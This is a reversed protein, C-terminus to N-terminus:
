HKMETYFALLHYFYKEALIITIQLRLLCLSAISLGNQKRQSDEIICTTILTHM